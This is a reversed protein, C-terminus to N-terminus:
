YVSVVVNPKLQFCTNDKITYEGHIVKFTVIDDPHLEHLVFQVLSTVVSVDWYCWDSWEMQLHQLDVQYQKQFLNRIESPSITYCKIWDWSLEESWPLTLSSPFYMLMDSCQDCLDSQLHFLNLASMSSWWLWKDSIQQMASYYFKHLIKYKSKASTKLGQLKIRKQSAWSQPPAMISHDVPEGTATSTTKWSNTIWRCQWTPNEKM